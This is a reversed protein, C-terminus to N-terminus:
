GGIMEYVDVLAMQTSTLENKLEANENGLTEIYEQHEYRKEDMWYEEHGEDDVTHVINEHVYVYDDKVVVPVAWAASGSIRGNDKM